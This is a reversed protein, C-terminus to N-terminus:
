LGWQDGLGGSSPSSTRWWQSTTTAPSGSSSRTSNRARRACAPSLGRCPVRHSGGPDRDDDFRRPITLIQGNDANPGRVLSRALAMIGTAAELNALRVEDHEALYGQDAGLWAKPM